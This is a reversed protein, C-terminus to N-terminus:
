KGRYKIYVSYMSIIAVHVIIHLKIEMVNYTQPLGIGLRSALPHPTNLVVSM